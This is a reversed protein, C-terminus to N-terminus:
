DYRIRPDVAAYIFDVLLNVVVVLIAVVFVTAQLIAFDRRQIADITLKGIGPWGFVTEVIVAGNALAIFQVGAVTIVPILGNRLIHRSMVHRESLGKARATMVYTAGLQEVLSARMVQAMAGIPGWALVIVPLILYKLGGTGSTPLWGLRVAFLLILMLALWFNPMAVGVLSIISTLRDVLSLPRIASVSGLVFAVTMSLLMTVVALELTLPLRELVVELAPRSHWISTGFDMRAVGAVFLFLQTYITGDLGHAERFSQRMEQTAHLPLYLDTPDGTLRALVFVLILVALVVLISQLLRRLVYRGM